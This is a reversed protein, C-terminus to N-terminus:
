CPVPPRVQPHYPLVEVPSKVPFPEPRLAAKKCARKGVHFTEIRLGREKIIERIKEPRIQRREEQASKVTETYTCVFCMCVDPYQVRRLQSKVYTGAATM